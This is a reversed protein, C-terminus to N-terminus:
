WTLSGNSMLSQGYMEAPQFPRQEISDFSVDLVLCSPMQVLVLFDRNFM